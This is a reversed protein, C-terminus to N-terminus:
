IHFFQSKSLVQKACFHINIALNDLLRQYWHIIKGSIATVNQM